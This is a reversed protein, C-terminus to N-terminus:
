KKEKNGAMNGPQFNAVFSPYYDDTSATGVELVVAGTTCDLFQVIENQGGYSDSNEMMRGIVSCPPFVNTMGGDTVFLDKMSSRYGDQPDEVAMYVVGDLRFLIHQANDLDSANYSVYEGRAEAAARQVEMLEVYGDLESPRMYDVADLVHPGLLAEVPVSKM